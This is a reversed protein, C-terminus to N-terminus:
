GASLPYHEHRDVCRQSERLRAEVDVLRQVLRQVQEWYEWELQIYRTLLREQKRHMAALYDWPGSLTPYDRPRGGLVVAVPSREAERIVRAVPREAQGVGSSGAASPQTVETLLAAIFPLLEHLADAKHFVAAPGPTPWLGAAEPNASLVIIPAHPLPMRVYVQAFTPGDMVPMEVDLLILDPRDQAVQTLAERGHEATQVRYGQDSLIAGWLDLHLCDDDVVLV